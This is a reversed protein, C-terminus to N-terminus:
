YEVHIRAGADHSLVAKVLNQVALDPAASATSASSSTMQCGEHGDPAEASVTVAMEMGGLDYDMNYVNVSPREGFSVKGKSKGKQSWLADAEESFSAAKSKGKGQKGKGKGKSQFMGDMYDMLYQQKGKGKGPYSPHRRDPCDRAFHSGGCNFCKVSTAGKGFGRDKRMQQTMRQAEAWTRKAEM